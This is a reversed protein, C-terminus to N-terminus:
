TPCESSAWSRRKPVKMRRREVLYNHVEEVVKMLWRLIRLSTQGLNKTSYWVESWRRWFSNGIRPAVSPIHKLLYCICPLVKNVFMASNGLGEHVGFSESKWGCEHLVHFFRQCLLLKHCFEWIFFAFFNNIVGNWDQQLTLAFTMTNLFDPVCFWQLNQLWREPDDSGNKNKLHITSNTTSNGHGGTNSAFLSVKKGCCSVWKTSHCTVPLENLMLVWCNHRGANWKRQDTWNQAKPCSCKQKTESQGSTNSLFHLMKLVLIRNLFLLFYSLGERVQTNEWGM